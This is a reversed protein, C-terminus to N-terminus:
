NNPAGADVWKRIKSINCNSLKPAAQPMPPFGAAHTIVGVLKGNDVQKKLGSYTDLVVGATAAATSHCSYCNTDLITTITQSYTINDTDCVQPQPAVDDEASDSTCAALLLLGLALATGTAVLPRTTKRINM